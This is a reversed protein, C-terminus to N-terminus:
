AGRCKRLTEPLQTPDDALVDHDIVTPAVSTGAGHAFVGLFQDRKDGVDDHGMGAGRDDRQHLNGSSNRDHERNNSVRDAGAVDLAQRARAAIDRAKSIEFIRDAPFPKFQEPLYSWLYP